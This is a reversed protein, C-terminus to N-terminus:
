DPEIKTAETKAESSAGHPVISGFTLEDDVFEGLFIEFRPTSGARDTLFFHWFVRRKEAMEEEKYPRGGLIDSVANLSDGSSVQSIRHELEDDSVNISFVEQM